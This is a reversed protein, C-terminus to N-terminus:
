TRGSKRRSRLPRGVVENKDTSHVRHATVTKKEGGNDDTFHYNEGFVVEFLDNEAILIKRGAMFSRLQGSKCMQRIRYEGIGDILKAAESITLVRRKTESSM